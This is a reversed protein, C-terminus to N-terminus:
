DVNLKRSRVKFSTCLVALFVICSVTSAKRVDTDLMFAASLVSTTGFLALAPLVLRFGSSGSRRLLLFASYNCASFAILLFTSGCTALMFVAGPMSVLFAGIVVILLSCTPLSMFMAPFMGQQAMGWLIRCAAM